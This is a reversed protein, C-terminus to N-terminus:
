LLGVSFMIFLQVKKKMSVQLKWLEQLPLFLITFDQVINFAAAVYTQLNVDNCTGLVVGNWKTWFYPVPDCSFITTMTFTIGIAVTFGCVVYVALRFARAPFIRQLFLLLSLKTTALLLVYICEDVM